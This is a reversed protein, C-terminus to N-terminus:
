QVDATSRMMLQKTTGFVGVIGTIDKSTTPFTTGSFSAGTATYLTMGTTSSADKITKSGSYTTGTGSITAGSVKVLTSEYQSMNGTITAITVNAPTITGTGTKSADALPIGSTGQTIQMLGSFLTLSDNDINIKVKDGLSFSHNAAFRVVIGRNSADQIVLNRATTNGNSNDSIVVGEISYGTVLKSTGGHMARIELITKPTYTTGGGGGSGGTVDSENRMQLQKTANFQSLIGVVSVTGTKYNTNAFTATSATYLTINASADALTKSGFYTSSTGSITGNDVKVLTSEWTEFNNNIDTLTATRPTISGTGIKKASAVTANNVQLTSKFEELSLGNIALEVEDNLNFSHSATFRVAIGATADQIVLNQSTINGGDKDSIVIGKVKVNSVTVATGSFKDRLEQVTILTETGTTGGSCIKCRTTDLKMDSEDRIMLQKDTRYVTYIATVTGGKSPLMTGAFNAYGSNRLIISNGSCDNLTRSASSQNVADAYTTGIENCDIEMKELQILRYQHDDTLGSITTTLPAVVHGLSGKVLYDNIKGSPIAGLTNAGPTTISDVYGGLQILNNYSGVAMGKLKIFVRRGIPFDNYLNSRDIKIGIASFSDQIVIEKYFNGSKDDATIIGSIIYDGQISMVPKGSAKFSDKLRKLNFNVTLNPDAFPTPNDFQDKVCSNMMLVVISVLFVTKKM